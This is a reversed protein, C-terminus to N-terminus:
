KVQRLDHLLTRGHDLARALTTIASVRHYDDLRSDLARDVGGANLKSVAAIFEEWERIARSRPDSAVRAIAPICPIGKRGDDM